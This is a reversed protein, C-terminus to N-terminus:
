GREQKWIHNWIKGEEQDQDQDQRRTKIKDKKVVFLVLLSSHFLVVVFLVVVFCSPHPRPDGCFARIIVLVCGIMRKVVDVRGGPAVLCFCILSKCIM